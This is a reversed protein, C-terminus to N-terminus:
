PSSFAQENKDNNDDDDDLVTGTRAPRGSLDSM